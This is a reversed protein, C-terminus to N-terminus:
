DKVKNGNKKKMLYVRAMLDTVLPGFLPILMIRNILNLYQKWSKVEEKREWILGFFRKREKKSTRLLHIAFTIDRVRTVGCLNKLEAATIPDDAGTPLLSLIQKDLRSM